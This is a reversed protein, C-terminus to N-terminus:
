AEVEDVETVGSRKRPHALLHAPCGAASSSKGAACEPCTHSVCFLGGGPLADKKCIGGTPTPRTCKQAGSVRRGAAARGSPPPQPVGADYFNNAEDKAGKPLPVGADYFNNATPTATTAQVKRPVGVDFHNNTVVAVVETEESDPGMDYIPTNSVDTTSTVTGEEMPIAYVIATEAIQDPGGGGGGGGVGGYMVNPILKVEPLGPGGDRGPAYMPNAVLKVEPPVIVGGYPQAAAKAPRGMPNDIMGIAVGNQGLEDMAIQNLVTAKQARDRYIWWLVAILVLVLVGVVIGVTAGTSTSTSPQDEVTADTSNIPPTTAQTPAATSGSGPQATSIESSNTSSTTTTTAATNVAIITTTTIMIITPVTATSSTTTFTATATTATATTNTTSTTTATITTTTTTTPITTTTTTTTTTTYEYPVGFALTFPLYWGDTDGTIYSGYLTSCCGGKRSAHGWMSLTRRSDGENQQNPWNISSGGLNQFDPNEPSGVNYTPGKWQIGDSSWLHDDNSTLVDCWSDSSLPKFIDRTGGMDLMLFTATAPVELCKVAWYAINLNTTGDTDVFQTIATDTPPPLLAVGFGFTFLQGWHDRCRAEATHESYLRSCCGATHDNHPSGWSPLHTRADGAINNQPWDAASGGFVVDTLDNFYAPTVWDIGNPSWQHQIHSTLMVCWSTSQAQPKFYDRTSGMDLVLFLADAPVKSCADNWYTEDLNTATSDVTVFVHIGTNPPPPQLPIGFSLTFAQSWVPGASASYSTGCCGGKFVAADVGTGWFPLYHRNDGDVNKKPWYRTSGGNHGTESDYVPAIWEIGNPSWQHKEHSQLMQCWTTADDIPKLFDRTDGMELMLYTTAAPIQQCQEAWYDDTLITKGDADVFVFVSTFPPPPQVAQLPVGYAMKFAQRWVTGSTSYSNSCCGGTTGLTATDHGWASLQSREDGEVNTLPWDNASGGNFGSLDRHTPTRWISGDNSWQHDTSSTLMQCWTTKKATPKFYDQVDGMLVVVYLATTPVLTCKETWYADTAQDTAAVEAFVTIATGPPLASAQGFGACFGAVVVVISFWVNQHVMM